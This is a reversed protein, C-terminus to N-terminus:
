KSLLEDKKKKYGIISLNCNEIQRNINEKKKNYTDEIMKINKEKNENLRRVQERYNDRIATKRSIKDKETDDKIKSIADNRDKKAKEINAKLQNEEKDKDNKYTNENNIISQDLNSIKEEERNIGDDCNDLRVQLDTKQPINLNRFAEMVERHETRRQNAEEECKGSFSALADMEEEHYRSLEDRIDGFAQYLPSISDAFMSKCARVVVDPSNKAIEDKLEGAIRDIYNKMEDVTSKAIENLQENENATLEDFKSNILEIIEEQSLNDIEEETKNMMDEIALLKVLVKDELVKNIEEIEKQNEEQNKAVVQIQDALKKSQDAIVRELKEYNESGIINDLAQKLANALEDSNKINNMDMYLVKNTNNSGVNVNFLRKLGRKPLGKEKEKGDVTVINDIKKGM